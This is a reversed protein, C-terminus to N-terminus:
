GIMRPAILDLRVREVFAAQWSTEEILEDSLTLKLVRVRQGEQLLQLLLERGNKFRVADRYEGPNATLQTFTVDEAVDLGFANRLDEPIDRLLLQAGPPICVAIEKEETKGRLKELFSLFANSPRPAANAASADPALGRSGTPFTHVVLDEGEHALRNPMGMLSYDCM